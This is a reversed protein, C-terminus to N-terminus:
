GGPPTPPPQPGRPDTARAAQEIYSDALVRLSSIQANLENILQPMYNKIAVIMQLQTICLVIVIAILIALIFNTVKERTFMKKLADNQLIARITPCLITNDKLQFNLTNLSVKLPSPIGKFYIACVSGTILSKPTTVGPPVVYPLGEHEFRGDNVAKVPVDIKGEGIMVPEIPTKKQVFRIFFARGQSALIGVILGLALGQIAGVTWGLWMPDM